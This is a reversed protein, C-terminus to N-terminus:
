RLSKGKLIYTKTLENSIVSCMRKSNKEFLAMEGFYNDKGLVIIVKEENSSMINVSGNIIFFM